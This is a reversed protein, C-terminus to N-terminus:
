WIGSTKMFFGIEQNRYAMLHASLLAQFHSCFFQDHPLLSRRYPHSPEKDADWESEGSVVIIHHDAQM